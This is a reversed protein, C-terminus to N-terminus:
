DDKQDMHWCYNCMGHETAADYMESWPIDCGSRSCESVKFKDLVQTKFVFKQKGLLSDEGKDIVQKTIGLASDELHGMVIIKNLFDTYDNDEGIHDNWGM